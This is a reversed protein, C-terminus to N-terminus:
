YMRTTVTLETQTEDLSATVSVRGLQSLHEVHTGGCAVTASGAPLDCVWRRPSTLGTDEAEIRVAADTSLWDNLQTSVRAALSETAEALGPLEAGPAAIFGKKRLSKGIRYTDISSEPTIVSSTIALADFDPHGLSDVPVPKRWRQALADNLAFAMLHCATHAASLRSRREADVQTKATAGVWAVAEPYPVEAVHVVFWLWGPDGRRVPIDSGILTEATGIRQAGTVCDVVALVRDGVTLTGTDGPQDPWTHDVPHFPSEATIIGVGAPLEVIRTIRSTGHVAGTPFTVRTSEVPEM